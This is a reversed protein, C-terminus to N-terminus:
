HVAHDSRGACSDALRGRREARRRRRARRRILGTPSALSLTEAQGVGRTAQHRAAQKDLGDAHELIAALLSLALPAAAMLAALRLVDSGSVDLRRISRQLTAAISAEHGGPLAKALEGALELEDQSPDQLARRFEAFSALGAQTRLAAGAADVALAHYGLEAV